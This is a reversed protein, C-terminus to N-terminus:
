GDAKTLEFTPYNMWSVQGLVTIWNNGVRQFLQGSEALVFISQRNKGTTFWTVADMGSLAEVDGALQVLHVSERSSLRSTGLVALTAEDLWQVDRVQQLMRGQKASEGLRVPDGHEDRIVSAVEVVPGSPHLAVMAIRSGDRSVSVSEVGRTELWAPDLTLSRGDPHLATLVSRTVADPEVLVQHSTWVWGFRDQVPISLSRGFITHVVEGSNVDYVRLITQADNITAVVEGGKDFLLSDSALVREPLTGLSDGTVGGTIPILEGERVAFLVDGASPNSEVQAPPGMTVESNRVTFKVSLIQSPWSRMTALVQANFLARDEASLALLGESLEVEAVGSDVTVANHMLNTGAPAANWMVGSWLPAPGALLERMAYSAANQRPFWRVDPILLARDETFFYLMVRQQVSSFNTENLILGDPVGAIRWEGSDDKVVRFDLPVTATPDLESRVGSAEVSAVGTVELKVYAETADPDLVIEAEEPLPQPPEDADSGTQTEEGTQPPAVLKTRQDGRHVLVGAGPVWTEKSAQTLFSKAVDYNTDQWAAHALLFGEVIEEPTEGGRPGQAALHIQGPEDTPMVVGENVEGATPLSVCGSLLGIGAALAATGRWWRSRTQHRM